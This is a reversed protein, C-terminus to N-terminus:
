DTHITHSEVVLDRNVAWDDPALGAANYFTTLGSTIARRRLVASTLLSYDRNDGDTYGTATVIRNAETPIETEGVDGFDNTGGTFNNFLSDGNGFFVNWDSRQTLNVGGSANIANGTNRTIRNWLIWTNDRGTSNIEIGVGNNDVISHVLTVGDGSVTFGVTGNNCFQCEMFCTGTGSLRVGDITNDTGICRTMTGFNPFVEWGSNAWFKAECDVLTANQFKNFGGFGYTGTHSEASEGRSTIQEFLWQDATTGTNHVGNIATYHVDFHRLNWFDLAGDVQVGYDVVGDGFLYAKEETTGDSALGQLTIPAAATGNTGFDASLWLGPQTPASSVTTETGGGDTQVTDGNQFSGTVVEALVYGPTGDVGVVSIRATGTRSQNDILNNLDFDTTDTLPIMWLNTMDANNTPTPSNMIFGTEGSALTAAARCAGALGGWATGRSLGNLSFTEDYEAGMDAFYDTMWRGRVIM